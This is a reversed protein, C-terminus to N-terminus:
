HLRLATAATYPCADFGGAPIETLAQSYLLLWGTIAEVSHNGYQEVTPLATRLPTSMCNM